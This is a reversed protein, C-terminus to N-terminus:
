RQATLQFLRPTTDTTPEDVLDLVTLGEEALQGLDDRTIPWPREDTREHPERAPTKARDRGDPYQEFYAAM